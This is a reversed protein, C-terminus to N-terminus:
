NRTTLYVNVRNSEMLYSAQEEAEKRPLLLGAMKKGITSLSGKIQFPPPKEKEADASVAPSSHEQNLELRHESAIAIILSVIDPPNTVSSFFVLVNGTMTSASVRDIGDINSLTSEIQRKLALSRYLGSVKYRVRGKIAAHLLEVM